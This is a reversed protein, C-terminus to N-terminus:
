ISLIGFKIKLTLKDLHSIKDTHDFIVDPVPTGDILALEKDEPTGIAWVLHTGLLVRSGFKSSSTKPKFTTYPKHTPISVLQGANDKFVTHTIANSATSGTDVGLNSQYQTLFINLKKGFLYQGENANLLKKLQAPVNINFSVVENDLDINTSIDSKTLGIISIQDEDVLRDEESLIGTTICRAVFNKFSMFDSPDTEVFGHYLTVLNTESYIGTETFSENWIKTYVKDLVKLFHDTVISINKPAIGPLLNDTIYQPLMSASGTTNTLFFDKSAVLSSGSALAGTHPVNDFLKDTNTTTKFLGGFLEPAIAKKFTKNLVIM